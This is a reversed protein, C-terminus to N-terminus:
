NASSSYQEPSVELTTADSVQKEDPSRRSMSQEILEALTGSVDHEVRDVFMKLHKGLMEWYKSRQEIKVKRTYGVHTRDRGVGEFLDEVEVSVVARAAVDDFQDPSKLKGNEDFLTRIDFNAANWLGKVIDEISLSMRNAANKQLEDIRASIMANSRLRSARGQLSKPNGDAKYGAREYATHQAMGKFIMCAFMEHRRNKLEPM